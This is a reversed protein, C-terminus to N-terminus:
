PPSKRKKFYLFYVALVATVVFGLSFLEVFYPPESKYGCWNRANAGFLPFIYCPFIGLLVGATGSGVFILFAKGTDLILKLM